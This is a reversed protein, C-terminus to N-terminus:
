SHLEDYVEKLVKIRDEAAKQREPRSPVEKLRKGGVKYQHDLIEDFSREKHNLMELIAMFSTTRGNGGRCHLHIWTGKPLQQVFNIFSKVYEKDPPFHDTLPLRWYQVGYHKTLEAETRIVPKEMLVPVNLKRKHKDNKAPLGKKIREAHEKKRAAHKIEDLKRPTIVFSKSAELVQKIKEENDSQYKKSPDEHKDTVTFPVGNAYFHAEERLDVIVIRSPHVRYRQVIESLILAFQNESFQASASAELEPVFRLKPIDPLPRDDNEHYIAFCQCVTLLSVALM